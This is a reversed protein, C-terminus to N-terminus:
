EWELETYAKTINGPHHTEFLLWNKSQEVAISEVAESLRKNQAIYLRTQILLQNLYDQQPQVIDPWSQPLGHGPIVLEPNLKSFNNLVKLWGKLSGDLSPVRQAFILDSAWLTRTETDFVSIDNDTHATSHAHIILVREGLDIRLEDDVSLTPVLSTVETKERFLPQYANRYFEGRQALARAYNKHAVVQKVGIFASGGFIHDPHIHTLIVHSVPLNTMERIASYMARGIQPSGGPDIVAVSSNGIIFGINAIDGLNEVAMEEQKGLHLYIGPATEIFELKIEDSSAM